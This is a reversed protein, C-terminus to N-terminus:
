AGDIPAPGFDFFRGASWVGFRKEGEVSETVGLAVLEYYVARVVLATLGGGLSLYPAPEGGPRPRFELPHDVDAIIESDINTYFTICQDHGAGTVRMEVATFPADDVRIRAREVPTVLWYDGDLDRKLVSAFLKVLQMRSIQGGEHFWTGDAAIRIDIDGCILAPDLKVSDRGSM